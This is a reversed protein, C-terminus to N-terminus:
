IAFVLDGKFFDKLPNKHDSMSNPLMSAFMSLYEPLVKGEVGVFEYM